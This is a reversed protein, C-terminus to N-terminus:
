EVDDELDGALRQGDGPCQARCLRAAGDHEDALAGDGFQRNRGDDALFQHQAAAEAECARKRAALSMPEPRISTAGSSLAVMGTVSAM